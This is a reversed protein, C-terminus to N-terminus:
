FNYNINYNVTYNCYFFLRSSNCKCKLLSSITCNQILIYQCMLISYKYISKIISVVYYISSLLRYKSFICSISIYMLKSLLVFKQSSLYLTFLEGTWSARCEKTASSFNVQFSKITIKIMSSRYTLCNKSLKIFNFTCRQRVM